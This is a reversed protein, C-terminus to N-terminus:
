FKIKHIEILDFMFPIYLEGLIRVTTEDLFGNALSTMELFDNGLFATECEMNKLEDRYLEFDNAYLQCISVRGLHNFIMGLVNNLPYINDAFNENSIHQRTGNRCELVYELVTTNGTFTEIPQTLSFSIKDDISDVGLLKLLEIQAAHYETFGRNAAYLRLDKASYTIVDYMHTFEHFIIYDQNGKVIDKSVKLTHKDSVVDYNHSAIVNFNTQNSEDEILILEYSPMKEIDMFKKYSTLSQTLYSEVLLKERNM